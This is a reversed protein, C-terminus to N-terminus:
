KEEKMDKVAPVLKLHRSRRATLRWRANFQVQEPCIPGRGTSWHPDNRSIEFNKGCFGCLNVPEGLYIEHNGDCDKGRNCWCAEGPDLVFPRPTITILAPRATTEVGHTVSSSVQKVEGHNSRPLRSPSTRPEIGRDQLHALVRKARLANRHWTMAEVSLAHYAAEAEVCADKACYRWQVGPNTVRLGEYWAITLGCISCV